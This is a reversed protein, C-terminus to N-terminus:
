GPLSAFGRVLVDNLVDLGIIALAIVGGLLVVILLTQLATRELIRPSTRHTVRLSSSITMKVDRGKSLVRDNSGHSRVTATAHRSVGPQRGM